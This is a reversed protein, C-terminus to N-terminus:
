WHIHECSQERVVSTEAAEVIRAKLLYIVIYNSVYKELEILCPHPIAGPEDGLAHSSTM